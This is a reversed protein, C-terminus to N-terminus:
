IGEPFEIEGTEKESKYMNYITLPSYHWIKTDEISLLKYVKSHYFKDIADIDSIGDKELILDIVQPVIVISLLTNFQQDM